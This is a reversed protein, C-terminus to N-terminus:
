KEESSEKRSDTSQQTSQLPYKINEQKSVLSSYAFLLVLVSVVITGIFLNPHKRFFNTEVLQEAMDEKMEDLATKLAAYDKTNPCSFYHKAHGIQMDNVTKIVDDVKKEFKDLFADLRELRKDNTTQHYALQKEMSLLKETIMQEFEKTM